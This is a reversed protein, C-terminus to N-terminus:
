ANSVVTRGNKASAGRLAILRVARPNQKRVTIASLPFLYAFPGTELGGMLKDATELVCEDPADLMIWHMTVLLKTEASGLNFSSEKRCLLFFFFLHVTRTQKVNEEGCLISAPSCLETVFPASLPAYLLPLFRLRHDKTACRQLRPPLSLSHAGPVMEEGEMGM